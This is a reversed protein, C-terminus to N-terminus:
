DYVGGVPVVEPDIGRELPSWIKLLARRVVGRADRRDELDGAAKVFTLGAGLRDM